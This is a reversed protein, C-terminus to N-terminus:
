YLNFTTEIQLRVPVPKGDKECPKMRWGLVTEISRQTLDFPAFKVVKIASLRGDIGLVASLQVTGQYKGKRAPDTYDPNPCSICASAPMTVGEDRLNFVGLEPAIQDPPPELSPATKEFMSRMDETLVIRGETFWVPGLGLVKALVRLQGDALIELSAQVVAAAHLQDALWDAVDRNRLEEDDLWHKSLFEHLDNRGLVEFGAARNGLSEALTDALAVGLLSRQKGDQNSFDLVIVRPHLPETKASRIHHAIRDACVELQVRSVEPLTHPPLQAIALSTTPLFGVAVSCLLLCFRSTMAMGNQGSM